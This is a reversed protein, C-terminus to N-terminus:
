CHSERSKASLCLRTSADLSSVCWRMARPSYAIHSPKHVDSHPNTETEWIVILIVVPTKVKKDSLCCILHRHREEDTQQEDEDPRSTCVLQEESGAAARKKAQKEESNDQDTKVKEKVRRQQYM